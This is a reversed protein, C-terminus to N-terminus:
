EAVTCVSLLKEVTKKGIGNVRQLDQCSKFPGNTNRDEIAKQAKGMGMGPMAALANVDATNINVLGNAAVVPAAPAAIVPATPVAAQVAPAVPAAKPAPAPSSVGLTGYGDNPCNVSLYDRLKDLRHAPDKPLAKLFDDVSAFPGPHANRADMIADITKGGIGKLVNFDAASAYNINICPLDEKNVEKETTVRIHTGDSVVTIEGQWDTRYYKINRANFDDLTRQGPHGHKNALGCSILAHEFQGKDLLEPISSHPTGHHSAKLVHCKDVYPLIALETEAEADGMFLFCNNEHILKLVISNANIDSRTDKLGTDNPWLVEFHADPGFNLRQGQRGTLYKMGAAVKQEAVTMLDDYMKTAHPFGNDMFVKIKFNELISQMGGIHDAHPHTAVVLDFHDIGKKKLINTALTKDEGADILVLKGAHQILISDAQGVDLVSVILDEGYCFSAWSFFIVISAMLIKLLQTIRM